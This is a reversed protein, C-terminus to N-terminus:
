GASVVTTPPEPLVIPEGELLARLRDREGDRRNMTRRYRSYTFGADAHGLQDAVYGADEGLALAASAYSHRLGDLTLGDTRGGRNGPIAEAAPILEEGIEDLVKNAAAVAPRLLRCPVNGDSTRARRRSSGLRTRIVRTRSM